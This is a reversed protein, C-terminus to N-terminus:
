IKLIDQTLEMTKYADFLSASIKPINNDLINKMEIAQEYFGPKLDNETKPYSSYEDIQNPIYRRLPIEKTPEIIEMGRYLRCSEFDKSALLEQNLM